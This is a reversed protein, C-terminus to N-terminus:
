LVDAKLNHPPYVELTPVRPCFIRLHPLDLDATAADPRPNPNTCSKIRRTRNHFSVTTVFCDSPLLSKRKSQRVLITAGVYLEFREEKM